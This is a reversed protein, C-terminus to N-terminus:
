ERMEDIQDETKIRLRNFAPDWILIINENMIDEGIENWIDNYDICINKIKKRNQDMVRHFSELSVPLLECLFDKMNEYNEACSCFIDLSIYGYENCSRCDCKPHVYNPTFYGIRFLKGLLNYLGFSKIYESDCCFSSLLNICRDILKNKKDNIKRNERIYKDIVIDTAKSDDIRKKKFNNVKNIMNSMEKPPETEEKEEQQFSTWQDYLEFLRDEILDIKNMLIQFQKEHGYDRLEPVFAYDRHKMRGKYAEICLTYYKSLYKITEPVTKFTKDLSYTDVKNCIQKYKNYLEIALPFHKLCHFKKNPTIENECRKSGNPAMCQKNSDCM